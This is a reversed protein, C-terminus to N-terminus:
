HTWDFLFWVLLLLPIIELTCLYLLIYYWEIKGGILYAASRWLRQMGLLFIAGIMVWTLLLAMEPNLVWVLNVMFLLIGVFQPLVWTLQMPLAFVKKAGSFAGVFTMTIFGLLFFLLAAVFSLYPFQGLLGETVNSKAFLFLSLGFNIVFNLNLLWSQAGLIDWSEKLTSEFNLQRWFLLFTAVFTNSKIAKSWLILVFSLILCIASIWEIPEAREQLLLDQPNM